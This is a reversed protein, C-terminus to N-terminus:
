ELVYYSSIRKPGDVTLVYEDRMRYPSQGTSYRDFDLRDVAFGDATLQVASAVNQVIIDAPTWITRFKSGDFAYIRMAVSYPSRPPQDGWAIFWFEGEIPAKPLAETNLFHDDLDHGTEDVLTFRNDEDKYARISVADEAIAPGGRPIETAIVLFRGARLAPTFAVNTGWDGDKHGLLEDLGVKVRGAAATRPSFSAAVFGDIEGLVDKTAREKTKNYQERSSEDHWQLQKSIKAVAAARDSVSKPTQVQGRAIYLGFVPLIFALLLKKSSM